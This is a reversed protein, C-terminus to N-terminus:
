VEQKQRDPFLEAYNDTKPKKSLALAELIKANNEFTMAISTYGSVLHKNCNKALGNFIRANAYWSSVTGLLEQREEEQM